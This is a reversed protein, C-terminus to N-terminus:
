QGFGPLKKKVDEAATKAASALAAKAKELLDRAAQSNKDVYSLIYQATNVAEQFEKSNYFARAQNLLYAAKQEVAEIAKAAEIAEKSSAAKQQACGSLLLGSSMVLAIAIFFFRNM